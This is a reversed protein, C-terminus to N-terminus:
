VLQLAALEMYLVKPEESYLWNRFEDLLPLYTDYLIGLGGGGCTSAM